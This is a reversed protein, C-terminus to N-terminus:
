PGGGPPTASDVARAERREIRPVVDEAMAQALREKGQVTVHIFDYFLDDEISDFLGSLDRLELGEEERARELERVTRKRLDRAMKGFGELPVTIERERPGLSPKFFVLPQFFAVFDSGFAETVRQAKVLNSAYGTAIQERWERSLYGAADRTEDLRGFRRAFFGPAVARLVNSGYALLTWTPYASVDRQLLPNNESAVFNFPYGPRPDYQVPSTLDNGGNFMVVLDPELDAIEFVILAVEQGSVSSIVGYNFCRVGTLGEEHLRAELLEPLSPDGEFVTSGGVVFVRIEGAPKVAAPEAGRHGRSNLREPTGPPYALRGHPVGGFMTYPQPARVTGAPYLKELPSAAPLLWRSLMELIVFGVAASVVALAATRKISPTRGAWSAV